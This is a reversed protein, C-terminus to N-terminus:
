CRKKSYVINVIYLRVHFCLHLRLWDELLCANFKINSDGFSKRSAEFCLPSTDEQGPPNPGSGSRPWTLSHNPSYKLSHIFSHHLLIFSQICAQTLSHHILSRIFSHKFSRIFFYQVFTHILSHFTRHHHLFNPLLHSHMCHCHLRAVQAWFCYWCFSQFTLCGM